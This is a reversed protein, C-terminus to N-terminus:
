TRTRKPDPEIRRYEYCQLKGQFVTSGVGLLIGGRLPSWQERFDRQNVTGAWCGDLWALAGVDTIAAEAPKMPPASAPPTQAGIPGAVFVALTACSLSVAVSMARTIM